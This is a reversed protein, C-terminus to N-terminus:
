TRPIEILLRMFEEAFVGAAIEATAQDEEDAVEFTVAPIGYRKYIYNKGTPSDTVPRPQQTFEYDTLRPLVASVWENTIAPPSTVDSDTQTYMLNVETSHFDIFFRPKKGETEFNTLLDEVLKTEVQTFPGWDRNLDVSKLNNRWNGANVGDPNLIPIAVIHFRERFRKAIKTDAIISNYFGQFGYWGSVEPPHQRGVLVIVEKSAPNIDLKYITRGETSAGLISKIVAPVASATEMWREVEPPTVLMQASIWIPRDTLDLQFTAASELFNVRVASDDLRSWTTGDFSVKPWYRHHGGHYRLTIKANGEKRPLLKFSYWPSDNIEGDDEPTIHLRVDANSFVQCDGRRAGAFDDVVTYSGTVCPEGAAFEYLPKSCSPMSIAVCLVLGWQRIKSPKM